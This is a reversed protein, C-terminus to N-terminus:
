RAYRDRRSIFITRILSSDRPVVRSGPLQWVRLLSLAGFPIDRDARWLSEPMDEEQRAGVPLERYSRKGDRKKLPCLM